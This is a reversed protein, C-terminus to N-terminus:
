VVRSTIVQVFVPKKGAKVNAFTTVSKFFPSISEVGIVANLLYAFRCIDVSVTGQADFFEDNESDSESAEITSIHWGKLIDARSMGRGASNDATSSLDRPSVGNCEVGYSNKRPKDNEFGFKEVTIAVPSPSLVGENEDLSAKSILELKSSNNNEQVYVVSGRGKDNAFGVEQDSDRDSPTNSIVHDSLRGMKMALVRQTEEELQRIDDITLGYWEDQWVWAQRHGMLM